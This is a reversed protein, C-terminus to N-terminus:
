PGSPGFRETKVKRPEHGQAVLINAVTEVFGTPGCVFCAPMLDPPWSHTAVTALGLRGVQGPWEPPAERTYAYAIDLGKDDRVRTRLEDAYIADAPTRVSYILRFPVRSGAAARARIMAMLPVLGSGGGILVVPDTEMDRWVFWGGIPGRIEIPDGINMGELLYPSVEGDHVRQVTLEVRNGDAANAISYSRETSYGDEATLKVDVHQGPLHGPWDPVELILTSASDTERRRGTLTAVHWELRNASLRRPVAARAM